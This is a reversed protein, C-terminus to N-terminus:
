ALYKGQYCVQFLISTALWCRRQVSKCHWISSEVGRTSPLDPIILMKSKELILSCLDQYRSKSIIESNSGEFMSEGKIFYCLGNFQVSDFDEQWFRFRGAHHILGAGWHSKPALIYIGARSGVLVKRIPVHLWREKDNTFPLRYISVPCKCQTGSIALLLTFGFDVVPTATGILSLSQGKFRLSQSQVSLKKVNKRSM